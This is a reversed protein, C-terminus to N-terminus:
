EDSTTGKQEIQKLLKQREQSLEQMQKAFLERFPTAENKVEKVEQKKALRNLWKSIWENPELMQQLSQNHALLLEKIEEEDDIERLLQVSEGVGVVLVRKGIKVLQVSRNTGVSAGGLHEIMGRKGSLFRGRQNLLRLLGYILLVVFLTAFILKVVDWLTFTSAMQAPAEKNTNTQGAPAQGQCTEPNEFCQKVTPSQEAFVPLGTQSAILVIFCVFLPIIRFRFM